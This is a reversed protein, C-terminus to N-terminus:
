QRKKLLVLDKIKDNGPFLLTNTYGDLPVPVFNGHDKSKRIKISTIDIGSYCYIRFFGQTDFDESNTERLLRDDLWVQVSRPKIVYKM